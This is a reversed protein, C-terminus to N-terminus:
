ASVMLGTTSCAAKNGARVIHRRHRKELALRRRNDYHCRSPRTQPVMLRKGKFQRQYVSEYFDKPDIVADTAM